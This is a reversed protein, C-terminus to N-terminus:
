HSGIEAPLWIARVARTFAGGVELCAHLMNLQIKNIITYLVICFLALRRHTSTGLFRAPERAIDIKDM